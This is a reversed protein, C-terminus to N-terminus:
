SGEPGRDDPDNKKRGGLLDAFERRRFESLKQKAEEIGGTSILLYGAVGLILALLVWLVARLATGGPGGPTTAGPGAIERGEDTGYLYDNVVEAFLQVSEEAQAKDNTHSGVEILTARPSLDQNYSGRAMFIGKVLGPYKEDAVKKLGEAFEQNNAMNQNQRGVVLQIQVREEGAVQELYEEEPVADRHVDILADPQDKLAEEVTRRSRQYAGADHPTHPEKSRIVNVGLKELASAFSDGVDLIGGGPDKSETGDGPIYSEAGHSNYVAIKKQDNQQQAPLSMKLLRNVRAIWGEEEGVPPGALTVREVLEAVAEQEEVSIVRYYNNAMNIYEDGVSIRRATRVIVQGDQDVMTYVQGSHHEFEDFIDDLEQAASFVTALLLCVGLILALSATRKFFNNKV